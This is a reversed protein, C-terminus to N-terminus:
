NCAVFLQERWWLGSSIFGTKLFMCFKCFNIEPIELQCKVSKQLKVDKSAVPPGDEACSLSYETCSHMLGGLVAGDTVAYILIMKGLQSKEEQPQLLQHLIIKM